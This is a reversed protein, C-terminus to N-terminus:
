EQPYNKPYLFKSQCKKKSEVYEFLQEGTILTRKKDSIKKM